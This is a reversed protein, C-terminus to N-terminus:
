FHWKEHKWHWLQLIKNGCQPPPVCESISWKYVESQHRIGSHLANQAFCSGVKEVFFNWKMGWLTCETLSFLVPVRLCNEINLLYFIGKELHVVNQARTIKKRISTARGCFTCGSFHYETQRLTKKEKKTKYIFKWVRVWVSVTPIKPLLHTIMCDLGKYYFDVSGLLYKCVGAQNKHLLTVSPCQTDLDSENNTLKLDGFVFLSPKLAIWVNSFISKLSICWVRWGEKKNTTVCFKYFMNKEKKMNLNVELTKSWKGCIYSSSDSWCKGSATFSNRSM